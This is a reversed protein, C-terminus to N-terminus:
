AALIALILASSLAFGTMAAVWGLDVDKMAQREVHGAVARRAIAEAM